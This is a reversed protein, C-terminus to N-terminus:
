CHMCEKMQPTDELIDESEGTTNKIHSGLRWFWALSESRQGTRNEETIDGPMKLDERTIQQYHPDLVGLVALANRAQQYARCYKQVQNELRNVNSWARTIQRQSCANRVSTRLMLSKEGLAMRLSHLADNMQGIRLAAEQNGMEVLGCRQRETEQLKSPLFIVAFEPCDVEREDEVDSDEEELSIGDQPLDIRPELEMYGEDDFVGLSAVKNEYAGIQMRLKRRKELISIKDKVTPNQISHIYAKLKERTEPILV